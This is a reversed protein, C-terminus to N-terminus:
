PQAMHGTSIPAAGLAAQYAAMFEKSGPHGRLRVKVRGKRFYRYTVRGKRFEHVYPLRISTMM